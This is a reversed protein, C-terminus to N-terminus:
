LLHKWQIEVLSKYSFYAVASRVTNSSLCERESSIHVWLCEVPWATGSLHDANRNWFLSLPLRTKFFVRKIFLFIPSSSIMSESLKTQTQNETCRGGCSRFGDSKWLPIPLVQKRVKSTLWNVQAFYLFYLVFCFWFFVLGIWFLVSLFSCWVCFGIWSYESLTKCYNWRAVICDRQIQKRQM